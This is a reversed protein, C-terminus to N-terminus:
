SFVDDPALSVKFGIRNTNPPYEPKGLPTSGASRAAALILLGLLGVRWAWWRGRLQGSMTM